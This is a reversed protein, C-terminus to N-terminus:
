GDTRIFRKTQSMTDSNERVTDIKELKKLQNVTTDFKEMDKVVIKYADPM